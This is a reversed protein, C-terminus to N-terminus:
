ALIGGRGRAASWSGLWPLASPAHVHTFRTAPSASLMYGPEGRRLPGNGLRTALTRSAGRVAARRAICNRRRDEGPRTRAPKRKVCPLATTGTRVGLCDLGCGRGQIALNMRARNSTPAQKGSPQPEWGPQICHGLCLRQGAGQWCWHSCRLRGHSFLRRAAPGLDWCASRRVAKVMRGGVHKKPSWPQMHPQKLCHVTKAMPIVLTDMNFM